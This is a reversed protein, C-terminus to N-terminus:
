CAMRLHFAGFACQCSELGYRGTFGSLGTGLLRSNGGSLRRTVIYSYAKM